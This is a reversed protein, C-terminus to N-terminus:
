GSHFAEIHQRCAAPEEGRGYLHDIYLLALYYHRPVDLERTPMKYRRLTSPAVGLMRAVERLDLTVRHLLQRFRDPPTEFIEGCANVGVVRAYELALIWAPRVEEDPRQRLSRVHRESCDLLTALDWDSLSDDESEELAHVRRQFTNQSGEM